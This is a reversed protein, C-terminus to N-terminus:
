RFIFALRIEGIGAHEQRANARIEVQQRLQAERDVEVIQRKGVGFHQVHQACDPPRRALVDALIKRARQNIPRQHRLVDHQAGRVRPQDGAMAELRQEGVGIRIIKQEIRNEGVLERPTIMDFRALVRNESARPLTPRCHMAPAHARAPPGGAVSRCVALGRHAPLVDSRRRRGLSLRLLPRHWSCRSCIRGYTCDSRAVM